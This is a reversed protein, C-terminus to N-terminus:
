FGRQIQSSRDFHLHTFSMRVCTYLTCPHVSTKDCLKTLYKVTHRGNKTHGKKTQSNIQNYIAWGWRNLALLRLLPTSYFLSLCFSDALTNNLLWTLDVYFRIERTRFLTNTAPSKKSQCFGMKKPFLLLLLKPERVCVRVFFFDDSFMHQRRSFFAYKYSLSHFAMRCSFVSPIPVVTQWKCM